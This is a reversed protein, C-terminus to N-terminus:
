RLVASPLITAKLSRISALMAYARAHAVEMDKLSCELEDIQSQYSKIKKDYFSVEHLYEAELRDLAPGHDIPDM